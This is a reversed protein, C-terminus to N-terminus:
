KFLVIYAGTFTGQHGSLAIRREAVIQHQLEVLLTSYEDIRDITPGSGSRGGCGGGTRYTPRIGKKEWLLLAQLPQPSLLVHM